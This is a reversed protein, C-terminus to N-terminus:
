KQQLETGITRGWFGSDGCRVVSSYLLNMPVADSVWFQCHRRLFINRDIAFCIPREYFWRSDQGAASFLQCSSPQTEVHHFWVIVFDGLWRCCLWWCLPKLSAGLMLILEQSRFKQLLGCSAIGINPWPCPGCSHHHHEPLSNLGVSYVNRYMIQIVSTYTKRPTDM